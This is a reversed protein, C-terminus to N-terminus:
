FQDETLALVGKSGDVIAIRYGNAQSLIHDAFFRATAIKAQYFGADGEGAKIKQEAILAARAMQWGGLVIGAVDVPADRRIKKTVWKQFM